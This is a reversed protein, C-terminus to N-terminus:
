GSLGSASSSSSATTAPSRASQRRAKAALVNECQKCLPLRDTREEAVFLAVWAGRRSFAGCLSRGEGLVAMHWVKARPPKLYMGRHHAASPRAPQSRRAALNLEQTKWVAPRLVSQRM